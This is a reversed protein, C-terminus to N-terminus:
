TRWVGEWPQVNTAFGIGNEVIFIFVEVNGIVLKMRMDLRRDCDSGARESAAAMLRSGAGGICSGVHRCQNNKNGIGDVVAGDAHAARKATMHRAVPLAALRQGHALGDEPSWFGPLTDTAGPWTSAIDDNAALL